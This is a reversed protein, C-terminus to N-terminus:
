FSFSWTTTLTLQQKLQVGNLDQYVPMGCEIGFRNNKLVGKFHVVSGVYASISQGGYNLPNASPELRDYLSADRGTVAGTTNALVRISSSLFPLWQYAMWSNIVGEHGLRYGISNYGARYTGYVSANLALGNKQYLYTVAPLVDVTGSGMQMGYPYRSNAYMADDAAGTLYITGTPVSVGLSILLQCNEKELIGYLAHLKIDGIGHTKITHMSSGDIHTGPHVHGGASYMAMQMSNFQYNFMGMLTLKNTIGYMGMLMHMQMNMHEPAMLYTNFVQEKSIGSTGDRLDNMDMNMFRYSLMWENKNHIHSIMVGAPTLDTNCCSFRTCQLTDSSTQALLLPLPTAVLVLLLLRKLGTHMNFHIYCASYPIIM